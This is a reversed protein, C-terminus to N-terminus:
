AIAEGLLPLSRDYRYSLDFHNDSFEEYTHKLKHKSLAKVFRRAGFDLYFDDQTGVDIFLLKLAALARRYATEELMKLPDHRLWRDFVKPVLECSFPDFPLDFNEGVKRKPNPSYAASMAMVEMLAFGDKPKKKAQEYTALFQTTSGYRQLARAAKPFSHGYCLDFGMDGSHCAAAGFVGPHRMVLSLAGFGGSSKGIVARRAAGATAFTADVWSVLERAVYDSYRGTATSNVYQSGGYRTMADPMVVICPPMRKDAILRDLRDPLTEGGFSYNLFSMGTGTYGALMFVVPYRRADSYGEPLYVPTPRVVRDSLPNKRLLKSTFPVVNLM